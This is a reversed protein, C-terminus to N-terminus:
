RLLYSETLNGPQPLLVAVIKIRIIVFQELSLINERRSFILFSTPLYSSSSSTEMSLMINISFQLYRLKNDSPMM